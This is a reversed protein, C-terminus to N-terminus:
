CRPCGRPYGRWGERPWRRSCGGRGSFVHRGRGDIGLLEVNIYEGAVSDVDIIGFFVTQVGHGFAVVTGFDALLFMKNFGGDGYYKHGVEVTHFPETAVFVAVEISGDVTAIDALVDIEITGGSFEASHSASGDVAVEQVFQQADFVATGHNGM